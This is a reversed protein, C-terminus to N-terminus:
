RITDDDHFVQRHFDQNTKLGQCTTSGNGNDSNDATFVMVLHSSMFIYITIPYSWMNRGVVTINSENTLAAFYQLFFFLYWGVNIIRAPSIFDQM